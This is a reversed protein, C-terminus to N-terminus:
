GLLKGGGGGAGLRDGAGGTRFGVNLNEPNVNIKTPTITFLTFRKLHLVGQPDSMKDEVRFNNQPFIIAMVQKFDSYM